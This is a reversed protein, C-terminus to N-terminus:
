VSRVYQFSIKNKAYTMRGYILICKSVIQRETDMQLIQKLSKFFFPLNFNEYRFIQTINAKETVM